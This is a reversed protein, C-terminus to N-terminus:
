VLKLGVQEVAEPDAVEQEFKFAALDLEAVSDAVAVLVVAPQAAVGVAAGVQFASEEIGEVASVKMQRVVGLAGNGLRGADRIEEVFGVNAYEAVAGNVVFGPLSLAVFLHAAFEAGVAVPDDDDAVVLVQAFM